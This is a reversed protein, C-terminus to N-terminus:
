WGCSWASSGTSSSRPLFHSTLNFHEGSPKCPRRGTLVGLPSITPGLVRWGGPGGAECAGAGAGPGQCLAARCRHLAADPTESTAGVARGTRGLVDLGYFEGPCRKRCSESAVTSPKPYIEHHCAFFLKSVSRIHLSCRRGLPTSTYPSWIARCTRRWAMSTRTASAPCGPM